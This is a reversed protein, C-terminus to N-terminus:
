DQFALPHISKASVFDQSQYKDPYISVLNGYFYQSQSRDATISDEQRDFSLEIRLSDKSTEPILNLFSIKSPQISQVNNLYKGYVWGISASTPYSWVNDAKTIQFWFHSEGDIVMNDKSTGTIIVPTDKDMQTIVESQLTPLKRVNVHDENITTELLYGFYKPSIVQSFAMLSLTLFVFSFQIKM